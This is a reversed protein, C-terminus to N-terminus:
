TLVIYAAHELDLQDIGYRGAIVPAEWKLLGVSVAKRAALM